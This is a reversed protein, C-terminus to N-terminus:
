DNYFWYTLHIKFPSFKAFVTKLIERAIGVFIWFIITIIKLRINAGARYRPANLPM